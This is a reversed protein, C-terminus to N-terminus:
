ENVAELRLKQTKALIEEANLGRKRLQYVWQPTCNALKAFSAQTYQKGQYEIFVSTKLIGYPKLIADEFSYGSKLLRSRLTERPINYIRAWETLTKREGAYEFWVNNSKNNQQEALSIWRCNNPSYSSNGDIRDLTLEDAYGNNLAWTEFNEYVKWEDCYTIGKGHYYKSDKRSANDCRRRMNQWARFIRKNSIAYKSKGM